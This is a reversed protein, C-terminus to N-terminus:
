RGREPWALVAPGSATGGQGTVIAHVVAALGFKARGPSRRNKFVGAVPGAQAGREPMACVTPRSIDAAWGPMPAGAGTMACRRM